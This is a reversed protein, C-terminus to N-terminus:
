QLITFDGVEQPAEHALVAVTAIIVLPVSGAFAVAIAMGDVSGTESIIM